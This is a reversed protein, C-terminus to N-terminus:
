PKLFVFQEDLNFFQNRFCIYYLVLSHFIIFPVYSVHRMGDSSPPPAPSFATDQANGLQALAFVWVISLLMMPFFKIRTSNMFLPPLLKILLLLWIFCRNQPSLIIPIHLILRYYLRALECNM